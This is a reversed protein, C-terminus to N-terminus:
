IAIVQTNLDLILSVEPRFDDMMMAGSIKFADISNIYNELTDIAVAAVDQVLYSYNIGLTDLRERLDNPLLISGTKANAAIQDIAKSQNSVVEMISNVTSTLEQYANLLQVYQQRPVVNDQIQLENQFFDQNNL